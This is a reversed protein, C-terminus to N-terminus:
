FQAAHFVGRLDSVALMQADAPCLEYSCIEEPTVYAYAMHERLELEGSITEAAYFQLHVTKDPYHHTVEALQGIVRIEIGLEEKIERCICAEGTEGPEIKGGPFEWLGGQSKDLPRRCILFRDEKILVAATVEIRM